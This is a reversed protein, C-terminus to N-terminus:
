YFWIIVTNLSIAGANSWSTTKLLVRHVIFNISQSQESQRLCRFQEMDGGARHLSHNASFIQRCELDAPLPAESFALQGLPDLVSLFRRFARVLSALNESTAAIAGYSREGERTFDRM